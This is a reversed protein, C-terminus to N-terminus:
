NGKLKWILHQSASHWQHEFVPTGPGTWMATGLYAYELWIVSNNLLCRKPWFVFKREWGAQRYFSSPDDMGTIPMVQGLRQGM